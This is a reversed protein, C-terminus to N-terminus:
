SIRINFQPFIILKESLVASFWIKKSKGLVNIKCFLSFEENINVEMDPNDTQLVHLFYEVFAVVESASLARLIKKHNDKDVTRVIGDDINYVEEITDDALLGIIYDYIEKGNEM